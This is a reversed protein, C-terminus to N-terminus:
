CSLVNIKDYVDECQTTVKLWKVEGSPLNDTINVVVTKTDGVKLPHDKTFNQNSGAEIVVYRYLNNNTYVFAEINYLDAMGKNELSFNLYDTSGSFNCKISEDVIRIGAKSCTAGSGIQDGINQGQKKMLNTYWMSVVGGVAVTIVVLLVVAIFQSVGKM